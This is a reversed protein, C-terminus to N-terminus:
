QGINSGIGNNRQRGYEEQIRPVRGSEADRPRSRMNLDASERTFVSRGRYMM